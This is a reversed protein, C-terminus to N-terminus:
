LSAVGPEKGQEKKNVVIIAIEKRYWFFMSITPAGGRWKPLQEYNKLYEAMMERLFIIANEKVMRSLLVFEKKTVEGYEVNFKQRYKAAYYAVVQYPTADKEQYVTAPHLGHSVKVESKRKSKPLKEILGNVINDVERDM